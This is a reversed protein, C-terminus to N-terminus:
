RTRPSAGKDAWCQVMAQFVAEVNTPEKASTEFFSIGIEAAKKKGEATSVERSSELDCKNGILITRTRESAGGHTERKSLWRDVNEFSDRDCVDYMVIVAHAGRFYPKCIQEFREQGSTDWIQLKLTDTDVPINQVKFDLGITPYFSDTFHGDVYRCVFSSKGVGSDGLFVIKRLVDCQPESPLLEVIPEEMSMEPSAIPERRLQWTAKLRTGSPPDESSLIDEAASAELVEGTSLTIEVLIPDSNYYKYLDALSMGQKHLEVELQNESDASGLWEMCITVEDPREVILLLLLAGEALGCEDISAQGNILEQRRHILQQANPPVGLSEQIMMKIQDITDSVQVILVLPEKDALRKVQVKM